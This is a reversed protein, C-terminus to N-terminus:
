RAQLPRGGQTVRLSVLVSEGTAPDIKMAVIQEGVMDFPRYAIPVDFRARLTGNRAWVEWTSRSEDQRTIINLVDGSSLVFVGRSQAHYWNPALVHVGNSTESRFFDGIISPYATSDQAIRRPVAGPPYLVIRHFPANTFVLTDGSVRTLAGGAVHAIESRDESPVPEFSGVLTGTSSYFFVGDASSLSGGSLAFSGDSRIAFGKPNAIMRSISVRGVEQLRDNYFAVLRQEVDYVGFGGRPDRALPGPLRVENPGSGIRATRRVGKGDSEVAFLGQEEDAVIIRGDALTVAGNLVTFPSNAPGKTNWLEKVLAQGASPNPAAAALSAGAVLLIKLRPNM